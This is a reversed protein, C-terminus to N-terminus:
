LTWSAANEKCDVWFLAEGILGIQHVVDRFAGKYWDPHRRTYNTPTKRTINVMM